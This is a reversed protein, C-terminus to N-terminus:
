SRRVPVVIATLTDGCLAIPKIEGTYYLTVMSGDFSKLADILFGGNFAIEIEAPFTDDFTVSENFEAILSKLSLNITDGKCDLIVPDHTRSDSCIQSRAISDLPEFKDIKVSHGACTSESINAYNPFKGDILRTYITYEGNRIIANNKTASITLEGSLGLSFVKKLSERPIMFKVKHIYNLTALALRM